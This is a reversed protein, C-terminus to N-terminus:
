KRRKKQACLTMGDRHSRKKIENYGKRRTKELSFREFIYIKNIVPKRRQAVAYLFEPRFRNKAFIHFPVTKRKKVFGFMDAIDSEATGKGMLLIGGNLHHDNLYMEINKGDGRDVLCLILKVPMPMKKPKNDKM